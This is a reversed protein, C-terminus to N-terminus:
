SKSITKAIRQGNRLVVQIRYLGAAWHSCPIEASTAQKTVPVRGLIRGENTFVEIFDVEPKEWRLQIQADATPNPFVQVEFDLKPATHVRLSSDIEAFVYEGLMLTDTQFYGFKDITSTFTTKTAEIAQWDARNNPRYLLVLKTEDTVLDQDLWGSSTNLTRGNYTFKLGGRYGENLIGDVKWYRNPSLRYVSGSAKVPDPAVWHHDIRIWVSDSIATTNVELLANGFASNGTTGVKKEESTIAQSIAENRNLMVMAPAELAPVEVMGSPGSLSVQQASLAGNANRFSLEFPVNQYTHSNGASKQSYWVKLSSGTFTTSDIEFAGWGPTHVWDNFYDELNLGSAEELALRLDESTAHMFVHTDMYHKLGEFFLSDGMYSRLTHIKDSPVEYTHNSYTYAHPVNSLPWYGGDRVHAFNLMERHNSRVNADYTARNIFWEDFLRETYSAFGENLWMESATRCTALDGFWHHSLEHAMIHQNGSPGSSLLARPFAINTAHEMAGAMFPVAVYGLRDWRYPGFHSEFAHFVPELSVFANKMATTDGAVAVLKVPLSDNLASHYSRNVETFNAVAVSALYSPIEQNLHWRMRRVPTSLNTFVTDEQLLGGCYSRMSVPTIVSVTYFSREVFNDFCPFWVRGFNHPDVNFGVGINYAYGGSFTFGGFGSLDEIPTGRYYVRIAMTDGALLALPLDVLLKNGIQVYDLPQTNHLVSDVTLAELDLRIQDIGDVRAAFDIRTSASLQTAPLTRLDLDITYHRIDISDSRTDLAAADADRGAEHLAKCQASLSKSILGL